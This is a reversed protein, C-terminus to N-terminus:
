IAAAPRLAGPFACRQAYQESFHRMLELNKDLSEPTSAKEGPPRNRHTTSDLDRARVSGSPHQTAFPDVVPCDIGADSPGWPAGAEARLRFAGSARVVVARRSMRTSSTAPFARRQTFLAAAPGTRLALSPM